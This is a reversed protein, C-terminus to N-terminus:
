HPAVDVAQMSFVQTLVAYEDYGCRTIPQLEALHVRGDRVYAADLHVGVVQGVILHFDIPQGDTDRLETESVVRCELACPSAAVRPADVLRCEALELDAHEFESRGRPLESSTAMMADRLSYTPLNWVFGGSSAALAISHKRGQSSFALMPPADAIVNFFSYPALNTSGDSPDRTSIWGIPRPAVLSKFPDHPLLGRDRKSPEYFIMALDGRQDAADTMHELRTM